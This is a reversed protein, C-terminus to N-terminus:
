YNRRVVRTNGFLTFARSELKRAYLFLMKDLLESINAM